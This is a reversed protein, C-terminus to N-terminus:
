SLVTSADRVLDIQGVFSIESGDSMVNTWMGIESVDLADVNDQEILISNQNFRIDYSDLAAIVGSLTTSLSHGDLQTTHKFGFSESQQALAEIATDSRYFQIAQNDEGSTLTIVDFLDNAALAEFWTQDLLSTSFITEVLDFAVPVAVDDTSSSGDVNSVIDLTEEDLKEEADARIIDEDSGESGDSTEASAEDAGSTQSGSQEPLSDIGENMDFKLIIEADTSAFKAGATAPLVEQDIPMEGDAAAQVIEAQAEAIAADSAAAEHEVVEAHDEQADFKPLVGGFVTEFTLEDESPLLDSLEFALILGAMTAVITPSDGSGDFMRALAQQVRAITNPDYKRALNEIGDSEVVSNAQAQNNELKFLLFLASISMIIRAAPHTIVKGKRQSRMEVLQCVEEEFRSILEAISYGTIKLNFPDCILLCRRDIRAVHMFVDQSSADYFVFWPEGEDSLGQDMGIGIGNEVLLRHARYFDATDQTSWGQEPQQNPSQNFRRFSLIGM